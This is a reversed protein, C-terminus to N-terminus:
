RRPMTQPAQPTLTPPMVPGTPPTFVPKTVAPPPNTMRAEIQDALQAMYTNGPNQNSQLRATAALKQVQSDPAAEALLPMAEPSSLYSLVKRADTSPESLKAVIIDDMSQGTKQSEIAASARLWDNYRLGDVGGFKGVANDFQPETDRLLKAMDASSQLFPAANFDQGSNLANALISSALPNKSAGIEALFEKQKEPPASTILHAMERFYSDADLAGSKLADKLVYETDPLYELRAYDTAAYAAIQKNPDAALKKLELAIELNAGSTNERNHIASLISVMAIKEEDSLQGGHLLGLVLRASQPTAPIGKSFMEELAIRGAIGPMPKYSRLPNQDDIKSAAIAVNTQYEAAGDPRPASTGAFPAGFQKTASLDTQSQDNRYLAFAVGTACFIALLIWHFKKM